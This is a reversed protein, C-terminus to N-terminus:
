EQFLTKFQHDTMVIPTSSQLYVVWDGPYVFLPKPTREIVAYVGQLLESHQRTNLRTLGRLQSPHTVVGPLTIGTKWQLGLSQRTAKPDVSM